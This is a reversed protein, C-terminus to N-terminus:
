QIGYRGLSDHVNTHNDFDMGSNFQAWLAERFPAHPPLACIYHPVLRHFCLFHTKHWIDQATKSLPLNTRFRISNRFLRFHHWNSVPHLEAWWSFCTGAHLFNLNHHYYDPFSM